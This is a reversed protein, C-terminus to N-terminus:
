HGSHARRTGHPTPAGDMVATTASPHPHHGPGHMPKLAAMVLWVGFALLVIGSIQRARRAQLLRHLQAALVSSTLMSPLTGLGFALMVAAGQLADGSLAAILLMSYVLGCPLWGWLLGLLLPGGVDGARTTHRALPQVTRWFRAGVQEIGGLLNWSFLTRLAILVVLLGAALRLTAALRGFDLVSALGAGLLGFLLGALAYGGLRGLHYLTASRVAGFRTGAGARARMGLAGALGGCMALCHGSGALGSLLAASLTIGTLESM